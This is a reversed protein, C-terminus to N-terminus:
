RLEAIVHALLEHHYAREAAVAAAIRADWDIPATDAKARAGATRTRAAEV